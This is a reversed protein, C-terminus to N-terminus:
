SDNLGYLRFCLYFRTSYHPFDRLISSDKKEPKQKRKQLPWLDSSTQSNLFPLPKTQNPKIACWGNYTILAVDMKICIILEIEFLETKSLYVIEIDLVTRNWVMWNLISVWNWHLFFTRNWVIWNLTVGCHIGTQDMSLFKDPAVVGPCLPGPLSPLSTYVLIVPAECDSQKTDYGPCGNSLPKVRRCIHLRPIKCGRGM